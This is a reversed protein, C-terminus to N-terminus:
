NQYRICPNLGLAAHILGFGSYPTTVLGSLFPSLVPMQYIFKDFYFSFIMKDVGLQLLGWKLLLSTINSFTSIDCFTLSTIDFSFFSM